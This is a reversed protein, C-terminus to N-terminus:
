HMYALNLAGSLALIDDHAAWLAERDLSHVTHVRFATQLALVKREVELMPGPARLHALDHLRGQLVDLQFRVSRPNMEDLALLDIVTERSTLVAYRQRHVMTSDGIEIAVDLGGQPAGADALTTLLETMMAAREMARGISLFQWGAARFMNEHVLGSFGAIKRLFVGMVLAADNGPGATRAIRTMSKEMDKLAAWGDVSFRDRIQSASYVASALTGLLGKPVAQAPDIGYAKLRSRISSLLPASAAETLRSNYARVLRALGEAREVYRGLWFLNDAARSPLPGPQARVFPADAPQLLSVPEVPADSVVWVDAVSGGNRMSIAATDPSSGIRGFGGPMVQWGAPTRALFMRITMPRPVLVGGEYVPTTSLTVLEKGVLGPASDTLWDHLDADEAGAGHLRGAVAHLQSGEFPMRTALAPGIMMRKAHARVHALERPGGCWWTAVNPLSLPKGTLVRAIAPLFAMLAQTELVGVGLANVMTVQSQRIASMLGPTGLASDERLELPDAWVGDMRRWLVDVPVLGQVTRLRLGGGEVVLDEGELLSLGLYRAIYAQEYYTDTLPGPTLIGLRSAPDQRLGDLATRFARFFGALRHVNCRRYLEPFVRGTAVRNELAFGAGSPADTRDSLVWWRGDPGRGIEFAVFHLFHGSRPTVGVMPRLWEPNQAILAAPLHGEAVLRNEGYLDAVVRELLEAREILGTALDRWEAEALLIPVPSFPWDRAALTADGYARFFVGADALHQDGAAFAADTEAATLASLHAILGAWAPRMKGAGDALEDPVGPLPTYRSFLRRDPGAKRAREAV